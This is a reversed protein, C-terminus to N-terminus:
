TDPNPGHHPDGSLRADELAVVRGPVLATRTAKSHMLYRGPISSGGGTLLHARNIPIIPKVAIAAKTTPKPLRIIVATVAGVQALHPFCIFKTRM